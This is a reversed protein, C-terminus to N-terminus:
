FTEMNEKGQGRRSNKEMTMGPYNKEGYVDTKSYASIQKKYEESKYTQLRRIHRIRLKNQLACRTLFM